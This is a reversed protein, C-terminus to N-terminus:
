SLNSAPNTTRRTTRPVRTKYLVLVTVGRRMAPCHWLVCRPHRTSSAPRLWKCYVHAVVTLHAFEPDRLSAPNYTQPVTMDSISSTKVADQTAPVDGSLASNELLGSRSRHVASNCLFNVKATLESPPGSLAVGLPMRFIIPM